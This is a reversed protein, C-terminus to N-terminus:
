ILAVSRNTSASRPLPAAAHAGRGCAVDELEFVEVDVVARDVRELADRQPDASPAARAHDLAVRQPAACPFDHRQDARVSRALGGRKARDVPEVAGPLAANAELAAVDRH